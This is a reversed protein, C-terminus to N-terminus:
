KKNMQHHNHDTNAHRHARTLRSCACREFTSIANRQPGRHSHAQSVIRLLACRLAACMLSCPWQRCYLRTVANLTCPHAIDANTPQILQPDRHALSAFSLTGSMARTHTRLSPRIFPRVVQRQLSTEQSATMRSLFAQSAWPSAFENQEAQLTSTCCASSRFSCVFSRVFSAGGRHRATGHWSFVVILHTHPERTSHLSHSRTPSTHTHTRPVLSVHMCHCASCM